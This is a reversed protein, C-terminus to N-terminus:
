VHFDERYSEMSHSQYVHSTIQHFQKFFAHIVVMVVVVVVVLVVVIVVTVVVVVMVVLAIFLKFRQEFFHGM